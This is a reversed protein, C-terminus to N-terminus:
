YSTFSFLANSEGGNFKKAQNQYIVKLYQTQDSSQSLSWFWTFKLYIM